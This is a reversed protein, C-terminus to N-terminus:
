ASTPISFYEAKSLELKGSQHTNSLFMQFFASRIGPSTCGHLCVKLSSGQDLVLKPGEQNQPNKPLAPAGHCVSHDPLVPLCQRPRSKVVLCQFASMCSWDPLKETFYKIAKWHALRLFLLLLNGVPQPKKKGRVAKAAPDQTSSVLGSLHIFYIQQM